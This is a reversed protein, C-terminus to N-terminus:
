SLEFSQFQGLSMLALSISLSFCLANRRSILKRKTDNRSTESDNESQAKRLDSAAKNNLQDRHYPAFPSFYLNSLSLSLSPSPWLLQAVAEEVCQERDRKISKRLIM